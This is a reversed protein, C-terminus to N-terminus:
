EISDNLLSRDVVLENGEDDILPAGLADFAWDNITEVGADLMLGFARAQADAEDRGWREREILVTFLQEYRGGPGAVAARADKHEQSEGTVSESEKSGTKVPEDASEADAAGMAEALM